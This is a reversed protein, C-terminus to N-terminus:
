LSTSCVHTVFDDESNYWHSKKERCIKTNSHTWKEFNEVIQALNVCTEVFSKTKMLFTQFRFIEPFKPSQYIFPDSNKSFNPM